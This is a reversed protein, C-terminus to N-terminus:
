SFMSLGIQGKHILPVLNITAKINATSKSAARANLMNQPNTIVTKILTHPVKKLDRTIRCSQHLMM